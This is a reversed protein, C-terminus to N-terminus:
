TRDPSRPITCGGLRDIALMCWAAVEETLSLPAWEDPAFWGVDERPEAPDGTALYVLDIHQHGPRIEALQIGAPRCLQRPQGPEDVDILPEGRLTAIVGTEEFVERIAAEDPLENPEIHGGPPLWRGLKRHFHLLVAGRHVVFVAVTFDRSLAPEDGAKEDPTPSSM